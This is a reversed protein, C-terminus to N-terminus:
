NKDQGYFNQRFQVQRLFGSRRQGLPSWKMCTQNYIWNKSSTVQRLLGTKIQGLHSRKISTQSCTCFPVDIHLPSVIVFDCWEISLKYIFVAM